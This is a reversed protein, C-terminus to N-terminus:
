FNLEMQELVNKLTIEFVDEVKRTPRWEEGANDIMTGNKVTFVHGSVMVLYIGTGFDKLFSKVTKKREIVEGRLKYRNTIYHKKVPKINFETGEIELDKGELKNTTSVMRMCGKRNIRNYTDKVFKHASDYTVDLATAYARVSCDNSEGAQINSKGKIINTSKTYKM